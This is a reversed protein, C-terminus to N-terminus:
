NDPLLSLKKITVEIHIENHGYIFQVFFRHMMSIKKESDKNGHWLQITIEFISKQTKLEFKCNKNIKPLLLSFSHKAIHKIKPLVSAPTSIFM